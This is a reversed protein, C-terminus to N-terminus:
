RNHQPSPDQLIRHELNTFPSESGGGYSGPLKVATSFAAPSGIASASFHPTGKRTLEISQSREM